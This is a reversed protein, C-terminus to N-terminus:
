WHLDRVTIQKSIIILIDGIKRFREQNLDIAIYRYQSISIVLAPLIGIDGLTPYEQCLSFERIYIYIDVTYISVTLQM